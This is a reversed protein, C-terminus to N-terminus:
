YINIDIVFNIYIDSMKVDIILTIILILFLKYIVGSVIQFKFIVGDIKNTQFVYKRLHSNVKKDLNSIEITM